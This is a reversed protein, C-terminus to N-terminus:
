GPAPSVNAMATASIPYCGTVPVPMQSAAEWTVIQHLAVRSPGGLEQGLSAAGIVPGMGTVPGGWPISSM